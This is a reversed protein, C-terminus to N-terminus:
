HTLAWGLAAGMLPILWKAFSLAAELRDVRSMLGNTGNGFLSEKIDIIDEGIQELKQKILANTVQQDEIKDKESSM